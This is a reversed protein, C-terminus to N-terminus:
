SHNISFIGLISIRGIDMLGILDKSIGLYTIAGDCDIGVAAGTVTLRPKGITLRGPHTSDL